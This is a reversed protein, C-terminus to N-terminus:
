RHCTSFLEDFLDGFWTEFMEVEADAVPVEEPWDVEVSL